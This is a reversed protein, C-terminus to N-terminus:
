DLTQSLGLPDEKSIPARIEFQGELSPGTPNERPILVRVSPYGEGKVMEYVALEDANEEPTKFWLLLDNGRYTSAVDVAQPYLEDCPDCGEISLYVVIKADPYVARHEAIRREFEARTSVQVLGRSVGHRELIRGVDGGSVGSVNVGSMESRIVNSPPYVVGYRSQGAEAERGTSVVVPAPPPVQRDIQITKVGEERLPAPPTLAM